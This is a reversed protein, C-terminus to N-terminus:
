CHTQLVLQQAHQSPLIVQAWSDWALRPMTVSELFFIVFDDKLLM